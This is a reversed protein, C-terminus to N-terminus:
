KPKRRSIFHDAPRRRKWDQLNVVNSPPQRAVQQRRQALLEQLRGAKQAQIEEWFERWKRDEPTEGKENILM